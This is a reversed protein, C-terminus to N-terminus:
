GSALEKKSGTEFTDGSGDSFQVYDKLFEDHEHTV